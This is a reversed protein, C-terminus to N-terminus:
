HHQLEKSYKKRWEDELMSMEVLSWYSDDYKLTDRL